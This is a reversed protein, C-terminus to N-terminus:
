IRLTSALLYAPSGPPRVASHDVLQAASIPWSYVIVALVAVLCDPSHPVSPRKTISFQDLSPTESCCRQEKAMAGCDHAMAACCVKQADSLNAGAVCSLSVVVSFAV